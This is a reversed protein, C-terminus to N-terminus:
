GAGSMMDEDLTSGPSLSLFSLGHRFQDIFELVPDSEFDIAVIPMDTGADKTTKLVYPDTM